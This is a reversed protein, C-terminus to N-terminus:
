WILRKELSSCLVPMRAWDWCNLTVPESSLEEEEDEAVGVVVEVEVEEVEVPVEVVVVLVSVSESDEEEVALVESVVPAEVVVEAEEAPDEEAPAEVVEPAASALALSTKSPSFPAPTILAGRTTAAPTIPPARRKLRYIPQYRFPYSIRPLASGRHRKTLSDVPRDRRSISTSSIPDTATHSLIHYEHKSNEINVVLNGVKIHYSIM